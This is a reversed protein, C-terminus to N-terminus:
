TIPYDKALEGLKPGRKSRNLGSQSEHSSREPLMRRLVRDRLVFHHFLAAFAHGGALIVIITAVWYHLDGILLSQNQSFVYPAPIAFLGFFSLPDHKSWRFCFGLGVVAVLLAYLAYHVLKNAIEALGSDASTLRRGPGLRWGIRVALVGALCIGLSVHVSQVELRAPAGRHFFSWAQALLYLAVVLVATAWHCAIEVPDYRDISSLPPKAEAARKTSFPIAKPDAKSASDHIDM